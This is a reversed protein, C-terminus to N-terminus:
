IREWFLIIEAVDTEPQGRVWVYDSHLLRAPVNGLDAFHNGLWFLESLISCIPILEQLHVEGLLLSELQNCAGGRKEQWRECTVKLKPKEAENKDGRM